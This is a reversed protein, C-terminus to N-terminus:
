YEQVRQKGTEAAQSVDDLKRNVVHKGRQKIEEAKEAVTDKIEYAKSKAQSVTDKVTETTRDRLEVAKGRIEARTEVGSRPAFLLATAVGIVSGVLFGGLVPKVPRTRHQIDEIQNEFEKTHTKM